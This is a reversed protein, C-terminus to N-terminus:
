ANEDQTGGFLKENLDNDADLVDHGAVWGRKDVASNIAEKLSEAGEARVFPYSKRGSFHVKYTTPTTGLGVVFAKSPTSTNM